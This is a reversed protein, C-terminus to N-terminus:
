PLTITGKGVLVCRGGVTVDTVQGARVNAEVFLRSPRGMELGQESLLSLRDAGRVLRHKVLYAALAGHAVGSAPDEPIGFHPAFMRCHVYAEPNVTECTFVFLDGFGLDRAIEDAERRRLSAQKIAALSGVPVIHIPLGASVIECPLGTVAIEAEDIGLAAAVKDRHFYQGMFEPAGHCLSYIADPGAGDSVVRFDGGELSWTFPESAAAARRWGLVDVGFTAGLMSHGAIPLEVEPTFVRLCGTNERPRGLIFGTEGPAMERAIAHLLPLPVDRAQPFLTLRSGGFPEDAFVDILLFHLEAVSLAV